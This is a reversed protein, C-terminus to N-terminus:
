LIITQNKIVYFIIQEKVCHLEPSEVLWATKSVGVVLFHLTLVPVQSLVSSVMACSPIAM